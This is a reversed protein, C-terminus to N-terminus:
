IDGYEIPLIRREIVSNNAISKSELSVHTDIGGEISMEGDYTLVLSGNVTKIKDLDTFGLRELTRIIRENSMSASKVTPKLMYHAKFKQTGRVPRSGIVVKTRTRPKMNISQKFKYVTKKSNFSIYGDRTFNRKYDTKEFESKLGISFIKLPFDVSASMGFKTTSMTDLKTEHSMELSSDTDVTLDARAIQEDDSDNIIETMDLAQHQDSILDNM